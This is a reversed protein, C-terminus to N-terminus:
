EFHAEPSRLAELRDRKARQQEKRRNVLTLTVLAVTVAIIALSIPRTFLYGLPDNRGLLLSIRLNAEAGSGLVLGIIVPTIPYGFFKMVFGLAGFALMLQVNFMTNAYAYTGILMLSVILPLLLAPSVRLVQVFVRSAVIGGLPILLLSTIVMQWSYGYVIEPNDRFLQPGPVFGQILLAGLMLAAVNSGPIGLTLAPIMAAANDANNVCEAAALGEPNGKGFTEPSKSTRRAEVYALFVSGGSSGPIIGLIIGIISSRLWVSWVGLVTWIGKTKGFSTFKKFDPLQTRRVLDLAPPLSFMGVIVVLEPFGAQLNLLGFGYRMEDTVADLGVTGILLGVAASVIGKIPDNGILAIVATLGFINLWFVEAPGFALAATALPPAIFMLAFASLTGGVASSIASLRIAAGAYGKQALPYGDFCTAIAGSTGPIRMLIAPIAAGQSSGNHIGALFGLATLTDMGFTFPIALAIAMSAGLGPIAGVMMGVTVGLIMAILPAFALTATLGNFMDVIM